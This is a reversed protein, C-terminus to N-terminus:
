SVSDVLGHVQSLVVKGEEWGPLDKEDPQGHAKLVRREAVTKDKQRSLTM